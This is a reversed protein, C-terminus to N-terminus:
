YLYRVRTLIPVRGQLTYEIRIKKDKSQAIFYPNGSAPDKGGSFDFDDANRLLESLDLTDAGSPLIEFAEIKGEPGIVLQAQKCFDPANASNLTLRNPADSDRAVQFGPTSLAVAPTLHAFGAYVTSSGCQLLDDLTRSKIENAVTMRFEHMLERTALAVLMYGRRRYGNWLLEGTHADIVSLITYDVVAPRKDPGDRTLYDGLYPNMSFLLIIDAHQRDPVLQYRGWDLLEPLATPVSVAMEKRCDCDLFVTRAQLIKPSFPAPEKKTKPNKPAAQCLLASVFLLWLCSGSSARTKMALVQGSLFHGM